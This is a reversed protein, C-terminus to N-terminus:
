NKIHQYAVLVISLRTKKPKTNLAYDFCSHGAKQKKGSYADKVLCGLVTSKVM